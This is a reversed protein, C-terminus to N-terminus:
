EIVEDARLLLARPMAIGLAKATKLNIILSYKIPQQAPLEAPRAGKLIKDVYEAVMRDTDAWRHGYSMLGGSRAHAENYYSAPLRNAVLGTHIGGCDLVLLGDPRSVPLADLVAKVDQRTSVTVPVLTVDLSRAAAQLRAFAAVDAPCLLATM